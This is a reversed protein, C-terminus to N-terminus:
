LKLKKIEELTEKTRRICDKVDKADEQTKLLYAKLCQNVTPYYYNEEYIHEQEKETGKNKIRKEAFILTSCVSDTEVRWNENIKLTKM